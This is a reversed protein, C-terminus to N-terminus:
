KNCRILFMSKIAGLIRTFFFYFNYNTKNLQYYKCYEKVIRISNMLRYIFKKNNSVASNARNRRYYIATDSTFDVYKMRDSILFMFLSDEGNKFTPNFRRNGIIDKYILKMCPGSFFKKAKYFAQKRKGRCRYFEMEISYKKSILGTIDDFAIPRALSIVDRNAKCYLEELYNESIYDDDDVFTIYDGTANDLGYNRANSVGLLPTYILKYIIGKDRLFSDIDNYYPEKQSGNLIVILEFRNKDYTQQVISQLCKYIYKEPKFTPIIVSIDM